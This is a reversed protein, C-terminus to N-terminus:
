SLIEKVQRLEVISLRGSIVNPESAVIVVLDKQRLERKEYLWKIIVKIQKDISAQKKMVVPIIGWSLALQLGIQKDFCVAYHPLEPRYRSVLRATRGSQTTSIIAAAGEAGALVHAIKSLADDPSSDEEFPISVDDYTSAETKVIVKSMYAVAEVPFRGAATEGSLMTADAHDIVANAVDSVEARTPRPNKIMSELMQTAVIVPKAATRCREVIMKQVLPVDEAPLEIGLDGRAVMIGDAAHIISDITDVAEKREVKVIVQIEPLQEQKLSKSAQNILQHLQHVDTASRVFSLAMFDVNHKVGFVIDKKDKETIAPILLQSDPLNIGKHTKIAGGSIVHAHIDHGVVQTVVVEILGDVLLLREGKKVEKHMTAYTVPIKDGTVRGTTFVISSHKKLERVEDGIDGVRIRPGQLDQLIAIPEELEKAVSRIIQILKAHEAHTGHSFNLRAVNMGAKVLKKIVGKTNSAPGLTCVIKTRKMFDCNSIGLIGLYFLFHGRKM